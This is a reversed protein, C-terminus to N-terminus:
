TPARGELFGEKRRPPRDQPLRGTARVESLVQPTSLMPGKMQRDSRRWKGTKPKEPAAPKGIPTVPGPAPTFEAEGAATVPAVECQYATGSTLGTVVRAAELSVGESSVIWDGSDGARCRVHYDIIKDVGATGAAFPAWTVEVQGDGPTV